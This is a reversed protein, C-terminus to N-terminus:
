PFIHEIDLNLSEKNMDKNISSKAAFYDDCSQIDYDIEKCSSLPLKKEV